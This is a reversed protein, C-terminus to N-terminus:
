EADLYGHLEQKKTDTLDSAAIDAKLEELGQKKLFARANAVNSSIHQSPNLVASSGALGSRTYKTRAREALAKVNENIKDLMHEKGAEKMKLAAHYTLAFKAISEGTESYGGQNLFTRAHKIEEKSAKQAILRRVIADTTIRYAQQYFAGHQETQNVKTYIGHMERMFQEM